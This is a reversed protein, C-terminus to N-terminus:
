RLEFEIHDYDVSKQICFFYYSRQLVRKHKALSCGLEDVVRIFPGSRGIFM